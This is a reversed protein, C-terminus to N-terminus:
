EARADGEGRQEEAQREGEHEEHDACKRDLNLDGLNATAEADERGSNGVVSGRTPQDCLLCRVEGERNDVKGLTVVLFM